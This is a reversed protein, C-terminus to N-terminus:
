EDAFFMPLHSAQVKEATEEHEGDDGRIVEIQRIPFAGFIGVSYDPKVEEPAAHCEYLRGCPIRKTAYGASAYPKIEVGERVDQWWLRSCLEGSLHSEHFDHEPIGRFCPRVIGAEEELYYDRANEIYARSHIVLLRSERTLKEYELSKPLRRSVGMARTEEIFDAVNPYHESGIWDLVHTTGNLDETLTVGRPSVGMDDPDIKQPPDFLFDEVRKGGPGAPLVAYAGGTVRVGCGRKM